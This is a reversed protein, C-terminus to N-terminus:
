DSDWISTRTPNMNGEFVSRQLFESSTAWEVFRWVSEQDKSRTNMVVSWTWLNPQRGAPGSPPLAYGIQGVLSSYEPDEFYAVYHDSDVILGYKGHAFDLALEYWRQNTWDPPGSQRLADIFHQTAEVAVPSAITCRGDVFDSGGYSWLQTAFGTYM